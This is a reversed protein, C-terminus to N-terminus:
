KCSFLCKKKHDDEFGGREEFTISLHQAFFTPHCSTRWNGFTSQGEVPPRRLTASAPCPLSHSHLWHQPKKLLQPFFQSVFNSGKRGYCKRVFLLTSSNYFYLYIRSSSLFPEFQYVSFMSHICTLNESFIWMLQKRGFFQICFITHYLTFDPFPVVKLKNSSM